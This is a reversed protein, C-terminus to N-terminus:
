VGVSKVKKSPPEFDDCYIPDLSYDHQRKNRPLKENPLRIKPAIMLAQDPVGYGEKRLQAAGERLAQSAKERARLDDSEVFGDPSHKVLFRGGYQKVTEVIEVALAPKDQKLAELYKMKNDSILKRFRKNGPHNNVKGGRGCIVDHDTVDNAKIIKMPEKISEAFSRHPRKYHDVPASAYHAPPAAFPYSHRYAHAYPLPPYHPM